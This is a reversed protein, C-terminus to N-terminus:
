ATSARGEGQATQWASSGADFISIGPQLCTQRQRFDGIPQSSAQSGGAQEAASVAKGAAGASLSALGNWVLLNILSDHWGRAELVGTFRTGVTETTKSLMGKMGMSTKRVLPERRNYDFGFYLPNRPVLHEIISESFSLWKQLDGDMFMLNSRVFLVGSLLEERRSPEELKRCTRELQELLDGAQRLGETLVLVFAHYLALELSTKHEEPIREMCGLLTSLEGLELAAPFHQELYKEALVYARGALAQDIAEDMLGHDAFARAAKLRLQVAGEPNEHVLRDQLFRAFLHHYRFWRGQEDLPVLFLNMQQVTELLQRSGPQGTIRM